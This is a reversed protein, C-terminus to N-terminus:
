KASAEDPLALSLVGSAQWGDHGGFDRRLSTAKKLM